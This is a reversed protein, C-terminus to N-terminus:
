NWSINKKIVQAPTGAVLCNEPVNKTVTANAAVVSGSGIKVGKLILARCGIWVNDGIIVPSTDEKKNISHYDTDTIVVDWSIACNNGIEISSKCMIETRRNIYTRDGIIIKASEKDLFFSVNQYLTVYDGIILKTNESKSLRAKGVVRLLKGCHTLKRRFLMGRFIRILNLTKRNLIKNMGKEKISLLTLRFFAILIKFLKRVGWHCM